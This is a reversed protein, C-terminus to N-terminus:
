VITSWVNFSVGKRKERRERGKLYKMIDTLSTQLNNDM